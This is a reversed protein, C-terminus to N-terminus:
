LDIKDYKPEIEYGFDKEFEEISSYAESVEQEVEMDSITTVPAVYYDAVSLEQMLQAIQEPPNELNNNGVGSINHFMQMMLWIGAFMAALYVYPRVLHWKSLKEPEPAAVYPPLKKEIEDAVSDFYGVPVRWGGDTGFTAKIKDEEKM